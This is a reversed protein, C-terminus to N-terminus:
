LIQNPYSRKAELNQPLPTRLGDCFTVYKARTLKKFPVVYFLPFIFLCCLIWPFFSTKLYVGDKIFGDSNEISKLIAENVSLNLDTCFYYPTFTYRMVACNYYFHSISLLFATGILLTFFVARYIFTSFYLYFTLGLCFFPPLYFFLAWLMRLLLLKSYLLFSRFSQSPRLFIFLYKFKAKTGKSYMYYIANEGTKLGSVFLALVFCACVTFLSYIFYVLFSDYSVVLLQFQKSVLIFHASLVVTATFLLKLINSTLSVFFLKITNGLLLEKAKVKIFGSM